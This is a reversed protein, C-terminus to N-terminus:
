NTKKGTVKYQSPDDVPVIIQDARAVAKGEPNFLVARRAIFRREKKVLMVYGKLTWKGKIGPIEAKAQGFDLPDAGYEGRGWSQRASLVRCGLVNSFESSYIPEKGPEEEAHGPELESEFQLFMLAVRDGNRMALLKENENGVSYSAYYNKNDELDHFLVKGSVHDFDKEFGEKLFQLRFGSIKHSVSYDFITMLIDARGSSQQTLDLLKNNFLTNIEKKVRDEDRPKGRPLTFINMKNEPIQKFESADTLQASFVYYNLSVPISRIIIQELWYSAEERVERDPDKKSVDELITIVGHTYKKGLLLVVKKRVQPDKDTEIIKKLFPIAAEPELEILSNLAILKLDTETKEQTEYVRQIIKKYETKGILALEGSIEIRLEQADDLWVSRSYEQILFDLKKVAEEKLEIVKDKDVMDKSIKNLCQALWYLAEDRLQGSPYHKFYFELRQRAKRWQRKFVYEKGKLFIDLEKEEFKDDEYSFEKDTLEARSENTSSLIATEGILVLLFLSWGIFLFRKLTKM